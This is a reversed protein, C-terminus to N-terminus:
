DASWIISPRRKVARWHLWVQIIPLFVAVAFASGLRSLNGAFWALWGDKWATNQHLVYDLNLVLPSSVLLTALGIFFFFAAVNLDGRREHLVSQLTRETAVEGTFAERSSRSELVRVHEFVIRSRRRSRKYWVARGLERVVYWLGILRPRNRARPDGAILDEVLRKTARRLREPQSNRLRIVARRHGGEYHVTGWTQTTRDFIPYRFTLIAYRQDEEAIQDFIYRAERIAIRQFDDLVVQATGRGGNVMTEAARRAIYQQDQRIARLEAETAVRQARVVEAGEEPDADTLHELQRTAARQQRVVRQLADLAVEPEAQEVAEQWQASTLETSQDAISWEFSRLVRDVTDASEEFQFSTISRM